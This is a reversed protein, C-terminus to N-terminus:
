LDRRTWCIQMYHFYKEKWTKKKMNCPLEQSPFYAKPAKCSRTIKEGDYNLIPFVGLKKFFIGFFTIMGMM